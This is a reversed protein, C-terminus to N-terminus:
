VWFKLILLVPLVVFFYVLLLVPTIGILIIWIVKARDSMSIYM